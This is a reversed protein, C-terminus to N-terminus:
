TDKLTRFPRPSPLSILHQVLEIYEEETIQFPEWEAACPYGGELFMRNLTSLPPIVKDISSDLLMGTDVILEAITGEKSVFKNKAGYAEPELEYKITRM